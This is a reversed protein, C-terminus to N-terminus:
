AAPRLISRAPTAHQEGRLQGAVKQLTAIQLVQQDRRRVAYRLVRELVRLASGRRSALQLGDVVLHYVGFDAIAQEIGRKATRLGGGGSRWRSAGPLRQMAPLHWLGFRLPQPHSTARRSFWSFRPAEFPTRLATIDHKVLLDLNDELEVDRLLLSSVELGAGRGRMVRRGLEKAFRTRGAERGVWTRDGLIAIEHGLKAAVLRETAASVSPDAVAWTAPAQYKGFLQILRGTVDELGRLQDVLRRQPDLELDVSISLAPKALVVSM